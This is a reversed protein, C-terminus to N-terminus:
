QRLCLSKRKKNKTFSYIRTRQGLTQFINCTSMGDGKHEESPVRYGHFVGKRQMALNGNNIPINERKRNKKLKYKNFVKIAQENIGKTTKYNM